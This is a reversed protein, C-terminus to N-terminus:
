AAYPTGEKEWFEVLNRGLGQMNGLGLLLAPTSIDQALAKMLDSPPLSPLVSLAPATKKSAMRRAFARTHDGTVCLNQIEPFDHHLFAELWQHTRDARDRRLNLIGLIPLDTLGLIKLKSLVQRTSAPDNAAFANVCLWDMGSFPLSLEWIKLAGLDPVQHRMGKRILPSAIGLFNGVAVVLRQNAEYELGPEFRAVPEPDGTNEAQSSGEAARVKILKSGQRASTAEWISCAEEDPVFVTAASPIAAALCLASSDVGTGWHEVHDPRANTLILIQPRLIQSSEVALFEPRIGMMECVVVDVSLQSAQKLVKKQELISPRGRRPLEQESGDPFLLMPRSGTTKALVRLGSERLAAALLRTVSSKGRTGTM